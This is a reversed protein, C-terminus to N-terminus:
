GINKFVAGINMHGHQYGALILGGVGAFLVGLSITLPVTSNKSPSIKQEEPTESTM